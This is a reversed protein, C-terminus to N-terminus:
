LWGLLLQGSGHSIHDTNNEGEVNEHLCLAALLLETEKSDWQSGEAVTQWLSRGQMGMTRGAKSHTPVFFVLNNIKERKFQMKGKKKGRFIVSGLALVPFYGQAPVVDAVDVRM